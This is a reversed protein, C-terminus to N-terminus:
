IGFATKGSSCPKFGHKLCAHLLTLNQTMNNNIYVINEWVELKEDSTGEIQYRVPFHLVSSSYIQIGYITTVDELSISVWTFNTECKSLYYTNLIGDFAAQAGYEMDLGVSTETSSAKCKLPMPSEITLWYSHIQDQDLLSDKSSASIRLTSKRSIQVNLVM